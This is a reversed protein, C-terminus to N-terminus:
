RWSAPARRQLLPGNEMLYAVDFETLTVLADLDDFRVAGERFTLLGRERLQRLVRNLHIASLGLADALLYQTIPCDYGDASALGVLRLRAGLELLFHATRVLASRRGIDVLHEVVMAEECSLAWLIATALRPAAAFVHFLDDVSVESLAVDTITEFSHESTRFLINRVGIFDGPLQFDVIQRSGDRLSKYSTVWGSSLIFAKQGRQGEWALETGAAIIQTARQFTGLANLEEIDLAVFHALKRALPSQM